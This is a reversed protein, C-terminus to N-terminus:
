TQDVKYRSSVSHMLWVGYGLDLHEQVVEWVVDPLIDALLVQAISAACGAVHSRYALLEVVGDEMLEPQEPVDEGVVLDQRDELTECEAAWSHELWIYQVSDEVDDNLSKIFRCTFVAQVKVLDDSYEFEQM